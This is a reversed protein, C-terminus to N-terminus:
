HRKTNAANARQASSYKVACHHQSATRECMFVYTESVNRAATNRQVTTSVPQVNVCSSAIKLCM